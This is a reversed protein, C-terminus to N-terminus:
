TLGIVGGSVKLNKNEQEITHDSGTSTCLIESKSMSFNDKLCEWTQIDHEKIDIMNVLSLPTM